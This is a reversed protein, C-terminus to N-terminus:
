LQRVPRHALARRLVEFRVINKDLRRTDALDRVKTDRFPGIIYVDSTGVCRHLAGDKPHGGFNDISVLLTIVGFDINPANSADDELHPGTLTGPTPFFCHSDYELYTTETKSHPIYASM